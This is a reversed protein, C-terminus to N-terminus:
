DIVWRIPWDHGAKAMEDVYYKLVHTGPMGIKDAEKAKENALGKLGQMWRRKQELPLIHFKVGKNEMAKVAMEYKAKTDKAVVFSFERGVEMMINQIKKPLGNWVDKNITLSPGSICGFGTYTFYPAVEHLKFGYTYSASMVWGDYVGTQLSTYAETLNSQVPVCGVTKIWPLNPGAAAIKHGKLKDVEEWDFNTILEYSEYTIASIWKQNYKKEFIEKLWPNNDYVRLNVNTALDMDSTGFPAFYSFNHLFLKPTEFIPFVLGGDLVGGEIAELEEGLKAVAAAFAFNWQIKHDTKAEIRKKVEPCWFDRVAKVFPLPDAPAGAGITLKFTKALSSSNLIPILLLTALFCVSLYRFTIRKRKM